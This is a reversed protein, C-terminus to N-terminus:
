KGIDVPVDCHAEIIDKLEQIREDALPDIRSYSYTKGLSEYKPEAFKHYPLLSIKVPLPNRSAVFCAMKKTETDSDNFGPVVVRRIWVPCKQLTKDLNEIILENGLGTAEKHKLTDMHKLDYLALNTHKLLTALTEWRGFGTTDLATHIGKKQAAMLLDRAFQWQFLPEGGSITMGGKSRRYFSTDKLVIKIVQDVDKEEGSAIIAKAPCVEVCKLCNNCRDWDIIRVRDKEAKVADTKVTKQSKPNVLSIAKLPCAAVCKGCGICLIDRAMIEPHLKQSEPNACWGCYLPCGKLFVTTRIGPGDQISWRQINFVIGKGNYPNIQNSDDHTIM